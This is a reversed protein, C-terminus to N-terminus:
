LCSITNCHRFSLIGLSIGNDIAFCVARHLKSTKRTCLTPNIIFLHLLLVQVRKTGADKVLSDCGSPTESFSSNM